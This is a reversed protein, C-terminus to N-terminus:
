RAVVECGLRRATVQSGQVVDRVRLVLGVLDADIASATVTVIDDPRLNVVTTPVSVVFPWLGVQEEGQQVQRDGSQGGAHKVRCKGAYLTTPTAPTFTGTTTNFSGAGAERTITCADLMLQEAARRGTLTV